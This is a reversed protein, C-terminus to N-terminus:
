KNSTDIDGWCADVVIEIMNESDKYGNLSKLINKAKILDDTPSKSKNACAENYLHLAYQYKSEKIMDKSDKFDGLEEFAAVAESYKGTNLLETAEHYRYNPIVVTVMIVLIVICSCALSAISKIIKKKKEAIRIEEAKRESELREKEAQIAMESQIEKDEERLEEIRRRCINIQEETDRWGPIKEFINIAQEYLSIKNYIEISKDYLSITGTDKEAINM